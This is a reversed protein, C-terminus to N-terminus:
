DCRPTLLSEVASTARLDKCFDSVFCHVIGRECHVIGREYRENEQNYIEQLSEQHRENLDAWSPM